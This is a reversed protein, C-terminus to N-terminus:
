GSGPVGGSPREGRSCAGRDAIGESVGKDKDSAEVHGLPLMSVRGHCIVVTSHGQLEQIPQHKVYSLIVLLKDAMTPLPCNVYASYRRSTRPQGDITRTRMSHECAREFHPLLAQFETDSLGTMARLSCARQTVEAYSPM